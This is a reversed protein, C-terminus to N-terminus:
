SDPRTSHQAANSVQKSLLEKSRRCQVDRRGYDSKREDYARYFGPLTVAFM